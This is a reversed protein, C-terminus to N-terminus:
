ESLEKKIAEKLDKPQIFFAGCNYVSKTGVVGTVSKGDIIRTEVEVPKFTEEPTIECKGANSVHIELDFVLSNSRNTFGYTMKGGNIRPNDSRKWERGLSKWVSRLFVLLTRKNDRNSVGVSLDCAYDSLYVRAWRQENNSYEDESWEIALVRLYMFLEQYKMLRAINNEYCSREKELLEAFQEDMDATLLSESM